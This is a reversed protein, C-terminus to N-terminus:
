PHCHCVNMTEPTGEDLLIIALKKLNPTEKALKSFLEPRISHLNLTLSLSKLSEIKKMWSIAQSNNKGAIELTHLVKAGNSLRSFFDRYGPCFTLDVRLEKLISFNLSGFIEASPAPNLYVVELQSAIHEIFPGLRVIKPRFGDTVSIGAESTWKFTRLNPHLNHPHPFASLMGYPDNPGALHYELEELLPSKRLLLQMKRSHGVVAQRLRASLRFVRLQPLAFDSDINKPLTSTIAADTLIQFSLVTLRSAFLTWSLAISPCPPGSWSMSQDSQDVVHLERVNVLSPLLTALEDHFANTRSSVTTNARHFARKLLLQEPAKIERYAPLRLVKVLAPLPIASHLRNEIKMLRVDVQTKNSWSALDLVQLVLERSISLFQSNVLGFDELSSRPLHEAVQMWIESPFSIM